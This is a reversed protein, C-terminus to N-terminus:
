RTSVTSGRATSFRGPRRGIDRRGAAPVTSHSPRRNGGPRWRTGDRPRTSEADRPDDGAGDRLEADSADSSSEDVEDEAPDATLEEIDPVRDFLARTEELQSELLDRVPAMSEESDADITSDSDADTTVDSDTDATVDSDTDATADTPEDSAAEAAPVGQATETLSQLEAVREKRDGDATSLKAATLLARLAAVNAPEGDAVAAPLSEPRAEGDGIGTAALLTSLETSSVLQDARDGLEQVTESDPHDDAFAAVLDVLLDAAQQRPDAM